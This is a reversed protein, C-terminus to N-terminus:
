IPSTTRNQGVHSDFNPTPTPHQGYIMASMAGGGLVDRRGAAVNRHGAYNPM